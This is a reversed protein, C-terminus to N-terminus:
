RTLPTSNLHTILGTKILWLSVSPVSSFINIRLNRQNACIIKLLTLLRQGRNIPLSFCYRKPIIATMQTIQPHNWM